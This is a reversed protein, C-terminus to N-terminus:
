SRAYITASPQAENRLISLLEQFGEDYHAERMDIIQILVTGSCPIGAAGLSNGDSCLAGKCRVLSPPVEM